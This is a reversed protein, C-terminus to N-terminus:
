DVRLRIRLLDVDFEVVVDLEKFMSCGVVGCSVIEAEGDMLVDPSRRSPRRGGDDEGVCRSVEDVTM